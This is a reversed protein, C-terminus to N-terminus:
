YRQAIVVQRATAYAPFGEQVSGAFWVQVQDQLQLTDFSAARTEAEGREFVLTDRTVTIVFRRVLKDAHSEVLIRGLVAENSGPEIATIFGTFDPNSDIMEGSQSPSACGAALPVSTVLLVLLTVSLDFRRAGARHDVTPQRLRRSLGLMEAMRTLLLRCNDLRPASPM